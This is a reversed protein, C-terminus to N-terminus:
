WDRVRERDLGALEPAFVTDLDAESYGCVAAYQPDMSIDVLNNLGSFLSTKSFKIVGTLFCFRIHADYSKIM